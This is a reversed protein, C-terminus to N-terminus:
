RRGNDLWYKRGGNILAVNDHGYLKAALLRLRRVLQQQRRLLRDEHRRRHGVAPLLKASTRAAPIDRRIQDSLQTTWNWGVAGPIHGQEYATTDVDVEILRVNPDSLHEQVWDADVLASPNAYDHHSM